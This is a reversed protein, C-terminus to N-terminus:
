KKTPANATGRKGQSAGPLPALLADLDADSFRPGAGSGGELIAEALASKREQMAVIREEISGAAILKYVFVPKDQGIRHARDSAQEEAAPNWWPDYHIVTDAATLNLGVGGAKLSILFLPVEGDMFRQVPTARDRTEGTLLVYPVGQKDLAQAILALMGTFQSFLLIRRGEEIMEPLMELLLDLKASPAARGSTPAGPLLRPDCCAQRLKLLADLVVIHSKALGNSAIADRVKAEMTSRVTEYLDRQVGELAVSRTMVTKPPLERAVDHKRRRLIFPRLRQSLLRARLTDGEREIPYRWHRNFTAEDGFLGPLLFDFHTWLEGLHNELPTGSLCLRHRSRLRRLAIAARAKGNKVQQAEDLILLHYDHVALDEEDRWLLPYTTLIIDHDAIQDFLKQRGTGHLTLLRLDPTFRAAETQWNHLLTTPVVVLAPRDLRGAEKELLIHALTQLTKGLGMDDALVGSIDHARLFQLWSLGQLQYDRLTAALGTPPQVDDIGGTGSLREVMAQLDGVGRFQLRARDQLAHLRGADQPAIRLAEKRGSFLDGLLAIVPKLRGANFHLTSLPGTQVVVPMDDDIADLNGRTWRADDALLRELLPALEVRKGDVEIDLALQFWGAVGESVDISIENVVTVSHRFGPMQIVDWGQARLAPIGDALFAGWNSNPPGWHVGPFEELQSHYEERRLGVEDLQELWRTEQASDRDLVRVHGRRDRAFLSPDDAQVEYDGHRFSVIALDRWMAPAKRNFGPPHYRITRLTLVPVPAADPPAQETTAQDADTGASLAGPPLPLGGHIRRLVQGVLPQEVALTAPLTLFDEAEGAPVDLLLAGCQGTQLDVYRAGHSSVLGEGGGDVHLHPRHASHTGIQTEAWSLWGRREPASVAPQQRIGPATVWARGTALLDDFLRASDGRSQERHEQQQWLRALLGIDEAACGAPPASILLPDLILRREFRISGDNGRRFQQVTVQLRHDVVGILYALGESGANSGARRLTHRSHIRSLDKLLQNRPQGPSATTITESQALAALLLAGVHKCDSIMPCSCTSHFASDPSRLSNALDIRTAYPRAHTGQVKGQLAGGKLALDQVRGIYPRAKALTHPDLWRQVDHSDFPLHM